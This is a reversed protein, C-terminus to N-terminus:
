KKEFVTIIEKKKNFLQRGYHFAFITFWVTCFVNLIGNKGAIFRSFSGIHTCHPKHYFILISFAKLNTVSKKGCFQLRDQKQYPLPTILFQLPFRCKNEVRNLNFIRPSKLLKGYFWFHMKFIAVLCAIAICKCSFM